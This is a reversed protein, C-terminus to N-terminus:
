EVAQEAIDTGNRELLPELVPWVNDLIIPQAETTPHIGDDQMLGDVLAVDELLFPLLPLDYDDALRVFVDAFANRYAQGYNPPIDIGLLVVEADVALSAEIMRRMNAEFQTPPLGRLGDNGGLELLVIDPEHQGLLEPLRSAGGSSTEGSISANIVKATTDLRAELLGVWGAEQEIGYAASLSDGMILIVPRPEAIAPAAVLALLVVLWRATARTM